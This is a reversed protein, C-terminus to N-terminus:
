PRTDNFKSYCGVQSMYKAYTAAAVHLRTLGLLNRLRNQRARGLFFITKEHSM